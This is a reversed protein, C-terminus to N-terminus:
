LLLDDPSVIRAHHIAVFSFADLNMSKPPQGVSHRHDDLAPYAADNFDVLTSLDLDLHLKSSPPPL